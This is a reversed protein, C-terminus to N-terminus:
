SSYNLMFFQMRGYVHAFLPLIVPVFINVPMCHGKPTMTLVYEETVCMLKCICAIKGRIYIRHHGQAHQLSYVFWAWLLYYVKVYRFLAQSNCVDWHSTMVYEHWIGPSLPVHNYLLKVSVHAKIWHSGFPIFNYELAKKFPHGDKLVPLFENAHLFLYNKRPRFVSMATNAYSATQWM